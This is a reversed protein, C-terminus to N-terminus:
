NRYNNFRCRHYQLKFLCSVTNNLTGTNSELDLVDVLFSIETELDGTLLEACVLVVDDGESAMFASQSFAV